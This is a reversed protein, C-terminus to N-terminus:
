LTGLAFHAAVIACVDGFVVDPPRSADVLRCRDPEAAAIARYATRLRVHFALDRGEFPDRGTAEPQERSQREGARALGIAPDLDLILTLEPPTSGVTMRELATVDGAALGGAAGQYARTSDMFRDCVVWRGTELAPRILGDLHDARAANFLLAETLPATVPLTRDFLIARVHEARTTGGPERTLLVDRGALRLAEVLRRAQTSKGSGEGGEFTIFRGRPM